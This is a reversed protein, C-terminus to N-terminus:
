SNAKLNKLLVKFEELFKPLKFYVKLSNDFDYTHLTLNRSEIMELWVLEENILGSKFAMKFCDRPSNCTLLGNFEAYAKLTKWALEFCFEFYQICGAQKIEDTTSEKVANEFQSLAKDLDTLLLKFKAM